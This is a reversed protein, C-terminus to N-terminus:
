ILDHTSLRIHIYLIHYKVSVYIGIYLIYIYLFGAFIFALLRFMVGKFRFIM